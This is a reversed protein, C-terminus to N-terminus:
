RGCDLVVYALPSVALENNEENEEFENLNEYIFM